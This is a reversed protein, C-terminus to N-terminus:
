NKIQLKLTRYYETFKRGTKTTKTVKREKSVVVKCDKSRKVRSFFRHPNKIKVCQVNGSETDAYIRFKKPNSYDMFIADSNFRLTEQYGGEKDSYGIERCTAELWVDGSDTNFGIKTRVVRDCDRPAKFDVSDITTWHGAFAFSSLLTVLLLTTKKM